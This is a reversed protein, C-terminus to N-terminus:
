KDSLNNSIKINWAFSSFHTFVNGTKLKAFWMQIKQKQKINLWDKHKYNALIDKYM